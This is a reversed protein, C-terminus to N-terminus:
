KRKSKVPKQLLSDPTVKKVLDGVAEIGSQVGQKVTELIGAGKKKGAPVKRSAKKVVPKASTASKRIVPKAKAAVKKAPAKTAKAVTKSKPPM